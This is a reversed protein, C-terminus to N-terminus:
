QLSRDNKVKFVENGGIIFPGGSDMMFFLILQGIVGAVVSVSWMVKIMTPNRSQGRLLGPYQTLLEAGNRAFLWYSYFVMLSWISLWWAWVAPKGDSLSFYDVLRSVRGSQLGLGMILWPISMGMFYGRLLKIYGPRLRSNQRIFTQVRKWVIVVNLLNTLIALIWFYNFLSEM